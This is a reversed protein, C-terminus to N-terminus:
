QQDLYERAARAADELSAYGVSVWEAVNRYYLGVCWLGSQPEEYYEVVWKDGLRQDYKGDSRQRLPPGRPQGRDNGNM